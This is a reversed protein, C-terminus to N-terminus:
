LLITALTAPAAYQGLESPTVRLSLLLQDLQQNVTYALGSLYIALGYKFLKPVLLPDESSEAPSIKEVSHRLLLGLVALIFLQSLLLTTVSLFGSLALLLVAATWVGNR